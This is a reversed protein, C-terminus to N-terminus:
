GCSCLNIFTSSFLAMYKVIMIMMVPVSSVLFILSTFLKRWIFLEFQTYELVRTILWQHIQFAVCSADQIVSLVSLLSSFTTDTHPCTASVDWIVGGIRDHLRCPLSWVIGFHEIIQRHLVVNLHLVALHQRTRGLYEYLLLRNFAKLPAHLLEIRLFSLLVIQHKFIYLRHGLVLLIWLFHLSSLVQLVSLVEFHLDLLFLLMFLEAQFLFVLLHIFKLMWSGLFWRLM